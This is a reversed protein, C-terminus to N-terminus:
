SGAAPDAQPAVDPDQRDLLLRLRQASREWGWSSEVWERGARGMAAARGPDTLLEALRAVLAQEDAGGVV